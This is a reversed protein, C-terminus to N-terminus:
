TISQTRCFATVRIAQQDATSYSSLDRPPVAVVTAAKITLHHYRATDRLVRLRQRISAGEEASRQAARGVADCTDAHADLVLTTRRTAAHAAEAADGGFSLLR